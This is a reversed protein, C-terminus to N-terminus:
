GVLALFEPNQQLFEFDPENYIIVKFTPDLQICQQIYPFVRDSPESKSYASALLFLVFPDTGNIEEAKHLYELALSINQSNLQYVGQWLYDEFGSLKVQTPNLQSQIISQYVKSRTQIELVSFFDSNQYDEIIRSFATLADSFDKKHYKGIANSFQETIAQLDKEEQLKM